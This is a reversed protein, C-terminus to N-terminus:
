GRARVFKQETIAPGWGEGKQEEVLTFGYKEYLARAADLGEFTWLYVEAFQKEDCFQMAQDILVTGVGSGQTQENVIFWRVRAKGQGSRSGDIAIAGCFGNGDSAWWFGDSERDFSEIFETLERRVQAEFRDDFSWHEAYYSAHLDIVTKEIGPRHQHLTLTPM